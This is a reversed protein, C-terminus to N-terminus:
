GKMRELIAALNPSRTEGQVQLNLAWEVLESFEVGMAQAVKAGEAATAKRLYVTKQMWDPDSRLGVRRRRPLGSNSDLISPAEPPPEEAQSDEKPAQVPRPPTAQVPEPVPSPSPAPPRAEDRRAGGEAILALIKDKDMGGSM